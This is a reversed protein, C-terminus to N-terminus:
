DRTGPGPDRARLVPELSRWLNDAVIREGALNPHIGDPQNLEPKGAVGALLFPALTVHYKQAVEPFVNHFAATYRSGFNPLAEMQVLVLTAGPRAQRVRDLLAEINRRMADVSQGRLGDNAGTELVLVDFPQRLLWDIRRLAGASTEGSVGANVVDYHYGASDLKRAILAPFASDPDLGLGATLSTGVFLITGRRAGPAGDPTSRSGNTTASTAAAAGADGRADGRACAGTSALVALAAVGAWRRRPGQSALAARAAARVPAHM